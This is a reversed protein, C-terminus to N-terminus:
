VSSNTLIQRSRGFQYDIRLTTTLDSYSPRINVIHLVVRVTPPSASM